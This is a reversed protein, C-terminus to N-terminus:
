RVVGSICCPKPRPPKLKDKLYCRANTGAYGPRVYTWDRCRNDAECAAKCPAGASDATTDFNRYDGGTRDISYEIPGTRPEIVGAGRVGSVCCKDELRPPVKSKLWCTAVASETRPYAFSWARCRADRECRGACLAPDGSRIPFNAYDGGRRDFGTQARAPASIAAVALALAGTLILLFRM